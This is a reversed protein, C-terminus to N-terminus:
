SCVIINILKLRYLNVEDSLNGDRDVPPADSADSFAGIINLGSRESLPLVRAM